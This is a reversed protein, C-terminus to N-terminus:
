SRDEGKDLCTQAFFGPGAKSVGIFGGSLAEYELSTGIMAPMARTFATKADPQEVVEDLFLDTATYSEIQTPGQPVSIIRSHTFPFVIERSSFEVDSRKMWEPQNDYILKIRPEIQFKAKEDKESQIILTQGLMFQAKWLFFGDTEWTTMMQRSKPICKMQKFILFDWLLSLYWKGYKAHNRDIEELTEKFPPREWYPLAAQKKFDKESECYACFGQLEPKSPVCYFTAACYDCFVGSYFIPLLKIPNTGPGSHEDLTKMYYRAWYRSDMGCREWEQAERETLMPESFEKRPRGM